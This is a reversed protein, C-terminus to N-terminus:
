SEVEARESEFADWDIPDRGEQRAWNDISNRKWTEVEGGDRATAYWEASTDWSRQASKLADDLEKDTLPIEIRGDGARTLGLRDAEALAALLHQGLSPWRTVYDSPIHAVLHGQRRYDPLDDHTTPRTM